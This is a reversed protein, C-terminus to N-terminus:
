TYTRTCTGTYTGTYTGTGTGPRAGGGPPTTTTGGGPPTTTTEGGPPTNVVPLTVNIPPTKVFPIWKGNEWDWINGEDDLYVDGVKIGGTGPIVTGETVGEPTVIPRKIGTNGTAITWPSDKFEDGPKVEPKPVYGPTVNTTGGPGAVGPGATVNGGTNDFGGASTTTPEYSEVPSPTFPTDTGKTLTSPVSLNPTSIINLPFGEPLKTLDVVGKVGPLTFDIKRTDENLFNINGDSDVIQRYNPLGRGPILVTKGPTEVGQPVSPTQGATLDEIQKPTLYDVGVFGGAQDPPVLGKVGYFDETKPDLTTGIGTRVFADKEDGAAEVVRISNKDKSGKENKVAERIAALFSNDSSYVGLEGNFYAFYYWLDESLEWYGYFEEKNPKKIVEMYGKVTSNIDVPGVNVMPIGGVSYFASTNASWNWRVNSFNVWKAFEPSVKDLALHNQDMKSRIPEAVAKGLLVDVRKMYDDRNEPEDASTSQLGEDLNYKVIRDGMVKLLTAPFAYQLSV